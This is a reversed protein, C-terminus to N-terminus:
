CRPLQHDVCKLGEFCETIVEEFSVEFITEFDYSDYLEKDAKLTDMIFKQKGEECRWALERDCTAGEEETFHVCDNCWNDIKVKLEEKTM